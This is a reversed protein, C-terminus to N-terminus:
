PERVMPGTGYDVQAKQGLATVIVVRTEPVQAGRRKRVFRQLKPLQQRFLVRLGLDQWIARANRGRSLGL